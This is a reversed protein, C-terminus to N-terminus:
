PLTGPAGRRFPTQMSIHQSSARLQLRHQMAMGDVARGQSAVVLANGREVVPRRHGPAIVDATGGIGGEAGLFERAERHLCQHIAFGAQQCPMAKHSGAVVQILGEPDGHLHLGQGPHIELGHPQSFWREHGIPLHLRAHLAPRWWSPGILAEM